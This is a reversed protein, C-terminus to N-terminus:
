FSLGLLAYVNSVWVDWQDYCARYIVDVLWTFFHDLFTTGCAVGHIVHLEITINEIVCICNLGTSIDPSNNNVKIM